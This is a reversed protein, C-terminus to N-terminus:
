KGQNDGAGGVLLLRGDPTVTSCYLIPVKFSRVLIKQELDWLRMVSGGYTILSRGDPVFAILACAGQPAQMEIIPRGDAAQHVEIRDGVTGTALRSSDPSFAIAGCRSSGGGHTIPFTLGRRTWRLRGTELDWVHIRHINTQNEVGGYYTLFTRGDPSLTAQHPARELAGAPAAGSEAWREGTDINWWSRPEGDQALTAWRSGAKWLETFTGCSQGDVLNWAVATPESSAVAIIRRPEETVVASGTWLFRPKFRTVLKRRELNWLSVGAQEHAVLLSNTGEIFQLHVVRGLAWPAGTYAPDQFPRLVALELQNEISWLRLEEAGGATLALRGDATLAIAATAYEHGRLAGIQEGTSLDHIHLSADPPRPQPRCGSAALLLALCACGLGPGLFPALANGPPNM